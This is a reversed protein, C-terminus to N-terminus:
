MQQWDLVVCADGDQVVSCQVVSVQLGDHYLRGVVQLKKDQPLLEVVGKYGQQPLAFSPTITYKKESGNKFLDSAHQMVVAVGYQVLGETMRYQMEYQTREHAIAVAYTTSRMVILAMLAVLALIMTVMVTSMGSQNMCVKLFDGELTIRCNGQANAEGGASTRLSASRLRISANM